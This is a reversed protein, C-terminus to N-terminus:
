INDAMDLKFINLITMIMQFSPHWGPSKLLCLLIGKWMILSVIHKPVISLRPYLQNVTLLRPLVPVFLVRPWHWQWAMQKKAEGIVLWM